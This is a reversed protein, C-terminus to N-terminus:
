EVGDLGAYGLYEDPIAATQARLTEVQRKLEDVNDQAEREQEIGTKRKPETWGNPTNQCRPNKKMKTPLSRRPEMWGSPISQSRPNRKGMQHAPQSLQREQLQKHKPRVFRAVTGLRMIATM